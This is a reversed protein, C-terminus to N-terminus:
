LKGFKAEYGAVDGKSLFGAQEVWSDRQPRGAFAGLQADVEALDEDSWAAIQAFSTVGLEGLRASLKPGLGKIRTLDDGAQAAVVEQAAGIAIVEGIGAMIDPGTSALPAAVRAAAAMQASSSPADILAQNRPAPGVGEDLADPAHHRIRTKPRRTLWWLALLAIVVVGAVMQWNAVLLAM